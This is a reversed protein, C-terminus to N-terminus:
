FEFEIKRTKKNWKATAEFYKETKSSYFDDVQLSKNNYLAKREEDTWIHGATEKPIAIQFGWFENQKYKSKELRGLISKGKDTKIEIEDGNLLKSIEEETFTHGGWVKNFGKELIEGTTKFVEGVAVKEKKEYQKDNLTKELMKQVEKDNFLNKM